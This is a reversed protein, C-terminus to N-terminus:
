DEVLISIVREDVNILLISEVIHFNGNIKVITGAVLPLPISEFDAIVVKEMVGCINKFQKVHYTWM